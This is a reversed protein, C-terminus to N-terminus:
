GWRSGSCPKDAAAPPRECRVQSKSARGRHRRRDVIHACLLSFAQLGIRGAWGGYSEAVGEGNGTTSAGAAVFVMHDGGGFMSRVSGLGATGDHGHQVMSFLTVVVDGEEDREAVVGLFRDVRSGSVVGVEYKELAPDFMVVGVGPKLPLKQGGIPDGVGVGDDAHVDVGPWWLALWTRAVSTAM